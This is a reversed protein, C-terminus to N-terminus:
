NFSEEVDVLQKGDFSFQGVRIVDNLNYNLNFNKKLSLMFSDIRLNSNGTALLLILNGDEEEIKYILPRADKCITEDKKVVEIEYNQLNMIDFVGQPIKENLVAKYKSAVVIAAVNPNKPMYWAKSAVLGSPASNNFRTLFDKSDSEKCDVVFYDAVSQVGLPLPTSMYTLMHPIYGQSFNMEFNARRLSRQLTRLTDQHAVYSMDGSKSHKLIIM